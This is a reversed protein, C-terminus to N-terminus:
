DIIRFGEEDGEADYRVGRENLISRVIRIHVGMGVNMFQNEVMTQGDYIATPHLDLPIHRTQVQIAYLHGERDFIPGGSQGKLGPTSTEVYLCEYKDDATRGNSVTRTHIGDNPFIVEKSPIAPIRFMGKEEDFSSAIGVFPFGMRCISTGPCLTDPDRLVPYEKVWSPDFGALRGVAIDVQRNVFAEEVRTGDWGWWMSHNTIFEPDLKIENSPADPDQQRSENLSNIESIKNQDGQYKVLSDYLHGATVFWGDRNLIVFSGCETRVEGSQLRTSIVVPRTYEAAKRCAEAFM